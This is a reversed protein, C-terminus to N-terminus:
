AKGPHWYRPVYIRSSDLIHEHFALFLVEAIEEATRAAYEANKEFTDKNALTIVPLMGAHWLQDMTAQLSNENERNRNDTLLIWRNQQCFLWLSRDELTRDLDLDAFSVLELGLDRNLLGLLDLEQLLREIYALYGQLNVDALLGPLTV